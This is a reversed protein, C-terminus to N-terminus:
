LIIYLTCVDLIPPTCERDIKLLSEDTQNIKLEVANETATMANMYGETKIEEFLRNLFPATEEGLFVDLQETM